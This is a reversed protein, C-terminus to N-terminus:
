EAKRVTGCYQEAKSGQLCEQHRVAQAMRGLFVSARQVITHPVHQPHARPAVLNSADRSLAVDSGMGASGAWAGFTGTGGGGRDDDKGCRKCRKYLGGDDAHEVHWDHQINLKCLLAKLM